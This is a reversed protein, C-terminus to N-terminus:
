LTLPLSPPRALSGGHLTHLYENVNLLQSRQAREEVVVVEEEVRMRMWGEAGEEEVRMRLGRRRTRKGAYRFIAMNGGMRRSHCNPQCSHNLLAAEAYFAAGYKIRMVASDLSFANNAVARFVTLVDHESCGFRAALWPVAPSREISEARKDTVYAGAWERRKGMELLAFTLLWEDSQEPCGDVAHGPKLLVLPEELLLMEGARIAREAVIYRGFVGTPDLEVRLLGPVGSSLHRVPRDHSPAAETGSSPACAADEALPSHATLANLDRLVTLSATLLRSKKRFRARVRDEDVEFPLDARHEWRGERSLVLVCGAGGAGGREVRLQLDASSSVDAPLASYHVHVESVREEGDERVVVTEVRCELAM